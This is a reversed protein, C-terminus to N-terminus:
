FKKEIARVLAECNKNEGYDKDEIIQIQAKFFPDKSVYEKLEARSEGEVLVRVTNGPLKLIQKINCITGTKLIDEEGPEEIKAEKQATLFIRQDALMADELALISKERGVDFHLVMYPFITIGRLPILPLIKLNKDM